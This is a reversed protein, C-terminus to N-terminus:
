SAHALRTQSQSDVEGHFQRWSEHLERRLQAVRGPSIGFQKAVQGTTDGFALSRAIRRDRASLRKLWEPFDIRFCVQDIVSTRPDEIVAEKWVQENQDFRDIRDVTCRRQRWTVPSLVDRSNLGSGIRRGGRVQTVAFRALVTPFARDERGQQALRMFAVCANAIAEQIAEDRDDGHLRRFAGLVSRRITPLMALFRSQWDNFSAEVKAASTLVPRGGTQFSRGQLATM